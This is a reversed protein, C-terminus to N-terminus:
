LTGPFLYTNFDGHQYNPPVRKDTRLYTYARELTWLDLNKELLNLYMIM